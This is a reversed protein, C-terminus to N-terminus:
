QDLEQEDPQAGSGGPEQGTDEDPERATGPADPPPQYWLGGPRPEGGDLVVAGNALIENAEGPGLERSEGGPAHWPKLTPLAEVGNTMPKAQVTEVPSPAVPKLPLRALPEDVRHFALPEAARRNFFRDNIGPPAPPLRSRQGKRGYHRPMSFRESV